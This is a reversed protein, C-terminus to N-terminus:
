DFVDKLDDVTYEEPLEYGNIFITPTYTINEVDCWTSMAKIKYYQKELEGNMPYKNAFVEYDKQEAHYWDDLAQQTKKIDGQAEIALFHSVPKANADKGDAKATFLIQLNIKGTNVLDELAPHVKACPGCYPNCVKVVHYKASENIISIGLGKPNTTMKRSKVLLGELVDPNHKIKKLGRKYVNTEKEQELLPKLLKWILIPLLVLAFLLPLKEIALTSQYYNGSFMITIEVVLVAQIIICFKCWQKIIFAQYYVSVLVIPLTLFSSLSLVSLASLSFGSVVLFIFTAFFYSFGIISLSLTGSFIKAYKSNLVANCNVKGSGGSCFSQLTPNHKDVDFWLLLVGVILGILKLVTFVIVSVTSSINTTIESNLFTIGIWSLLLVSISGKLINLTRKSKLKEEINIEKSEKSAEALLCVGTWKKLFYEKSLTVLKSKDDYYLVKDELVKHLVFFLPTRDVKLQIICPLPIETLKGADIKVALTEINYKELTDSISLLSPYDAHSIITDKLYKSTNAIGYANLLSKTVQICNDM